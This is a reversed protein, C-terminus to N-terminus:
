GNNGQAEAVASSTIDLFPQDLETRRAVATRFADAFAGDGGSVM